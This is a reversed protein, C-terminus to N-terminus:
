APTALKTAEHNLEELRKEILLLAEGILEREEVFITLCQLEKDNVPTNNLLLEGLRLRDREANEPKMRSILLSKLSTYSALENRTSVIEGAILKTLQLLDSDDAQIIRVTVLLAKSIVGNSQITGEFDYTQNATLPLRQLIKSKEEGRYCSPPPRTWLDIAKVPNGFVTFGYNYLLKANCYMGYVAFCEEGPSYDKCSLFQLKMESEDFRFTKSSSEAITSNHNVMDLLPVIVRETKNDKTIDLARSYIISM